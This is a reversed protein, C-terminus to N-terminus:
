HEIEILCAVWFLRKQFIRLSGLILREFNRHSEILKNTRRWLSFKLDIPLTHHLLSARSASRSDNVNCIERCTDLTFDYMFCKNLHVFRNITANPYVCEQSLIAQRMGDQTHSFFLLSPNGTANGCLVLLASLLLVSVTTAEREYQQVESGPFHNLEHLLALIM